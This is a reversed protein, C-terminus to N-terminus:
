KSQSVVKIQCLERLGEIGHERGKGSNKYGGFPNQPVWHSAGNVEVNGAKLKRVLHKIRNEDVTYIQSGLGYESDNALQLAQSDTEFTMIPLVPGFVEERWVKMETSVESIITPSYFAGLKNSPIDGGILIKAGKSTADKVQAVLLDLQKKSALPAVELSTVKKLIIALLSEKVDKHVILRKVADCTQGSFMFRKSVIKTAALELDADAFVIAPNSGGMELTSHIFKKGALEFIKKGVVSSGTFWIGDISSETLLKGEEGDGSIVNFVGSPLGVTTMIEGYLQGSLVCEEAAKYIVTNGVLLNPIVGWVFMDFPLNWPTIVAVSGHPEYYTKHVSTLSTSNITPNLAHGANDVFWQWYDWDWTVEGDVDSTPTGIEQNILSVIDKQKSKFIILAKKLYKVREDLSLEGWSEKAENAQMVAQNIEEASSALVEGVIEYNTAPNLSIIKKM